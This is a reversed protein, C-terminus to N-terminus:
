PSLASDLRATFFQGTAWGDTNWGWGVRCRDALRVGDPTVFEDDFEGGFPELRPPKASGNWRDLGASRLRGEDDVTVEVNSTGGPHALTVIARHQDIPTWQAGSQPVLAQPLWAVTEAALRGAGSRAIDPGSSRVVPILGHLRFHMSAGEPTMVDAGSFRVLRQGVIARWVFGRGAALIQDARFPLWLPGLRLRGRMTLEVALRLPTGAPLTRRLMREAPAPLGALTDPDFAPASGGSGLILTRRAAAAEPSVNVARRAPVAFSACPRAHESNVLHTGPLADM